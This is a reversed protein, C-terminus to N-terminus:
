TIKITKTLCIITKFIEGFTYRNNVHLWKLVHSYYLFLFINEM